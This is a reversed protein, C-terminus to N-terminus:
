QVFGLLYVVDVDAAGCVM